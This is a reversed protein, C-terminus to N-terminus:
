MEFSACNLFIHEKFTASKMWHIEKCSHFQSVVTISLRVIAMYTLPNVPDAENVNSLSRRNRKEAGIRLVAFGIYLIDWLDSLNPLIFGFIKEDNSLM